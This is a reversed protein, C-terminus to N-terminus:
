EEFVLDIFERPNIIIVDQYFRVRVLHQDGSVLFRAGSVLACEIFRNDSPDDKVATVARAPPDYVRAYQRVANVVSQVDLDNRELADRLKPYSLTNHLESLTDETFCPTVIGAEFLDPIVGLEGKFLVASVLVNTDFVVHM